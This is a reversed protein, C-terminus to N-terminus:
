KIFKPSTGRSVRLFRHYWTVSFLAEDLREASHPLKAIQATYEPTEIITRYKMFQIDVM